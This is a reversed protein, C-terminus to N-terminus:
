ALAAKSLPRLAGDLEGAAIRARIVALRGYRGKMLDGSRLPASEFARVLQRVAAGLVTQFSLGPFAQALRRFTARYSREDPGANAAFQVSIGPLVAAVTQAIDAVQVNLIDTGVNFTQGHVQPQPAELVTIMTSAVDRIDVLPRWPSGDTELELRGSTWATATLGNVVLDTRL